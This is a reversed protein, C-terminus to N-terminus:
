RKAQPLRVQVAPARRRRHSPSFAGPPAVARPVHELRLWLHVDLRAEADWVQAQGSRVKASSREPNVGASRAMMKTVVLGWPRLRVQRGAIDAVLLDIHELPTESFSVVGQSRKAAADLDPQDAAWGMATKALITQDEVIQMLARKAPWEEDRDRTLHVLFTSLDTRRSLIERINITM